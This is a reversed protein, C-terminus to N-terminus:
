GYKEAPSKRTPVHNFKRSQMNLQIESGVLTRSKRELWDTNTVLIPTNGTFGWEGAFILVGWGGGHFRAWIFLGGGRCLSYRSCSLFLCPGLSLDCQCFNHFTIRCSFILVFSFWRSSKVSLFGTYLFAPTRNSHRPLFTSMGPGPPKLKPTNRSQAVVSHGTSLADMAHSCRGESVTAIETATRRASLPAPALPAGHAPDTDHAKITTPRRPAAFASGRVAPISFASRAAHHPYDSELPSPSPGGGPFNGLDGMKPPSLKPLCSGRFVERM